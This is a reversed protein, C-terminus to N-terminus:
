GVNRPQRANGSQRRAWWVAIRRRLRRVFAIDASLVVLGLPVMWFGLIPLFGLCGGIVLLTGLAMRGLRSRPMPLRFRGLMLKGDKPDIGFGSKKAKEAAAM